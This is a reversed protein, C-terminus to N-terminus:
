PQYAGGSTYLTRYTGYGKIFLDTKGDGNYDGPYVLASSDTLCKDATTGGVDAGDGMFARTFGTGTSNALYLVRYTGYGKVFLDTKGDGNYDGPYVQADPSTLFSAVDTGGADTTYGLFQRLFGTGTSNALYLARYTGCGKVFFDAKGDGNYDGPYLKSNPSTLFPESDTGGINDLDSSFQCDFGTGASNATYLARYTGYGKVFLDAKGDGNYDGPCVQATPECVWAHIGSVIGAGDGVFARTFGTGTSNALYLVRYTGYGKVFLDTKGDGNYDGPYVQADPSTLFSAVDTGGADTTYGLFQRLFGTGSSNALYLARYTGYGKVFFDAKGDGNYDGPYLKADPSTLFPESDTGGINDLNSSFVANFNVVLRYISAFINFYCDNYLIGADPQETYISATVDEIKYNQNAGELTLVYPSKSKLVYINSLDLNGTKYTINTSAKIKIAGKSATATPNTLTCNAIDVDISDHHWDLIRIGNETTNEIDCNEIDIYGNGDSYAPYIYIGFKSNTIHCDSVAISVDDTTSTLNHLAFHIGSQKNNNFTCNTININELTENAYNPEFDIGDWPGASALGAPNFIGTNCLNCNDINVNKASIISIGNRANGNCTVDEITVTDNCPAGLYIGDGGSKDLRVGSITVNTCGRITLAHRWQGSTYENILMIIMANYGTIKINNKYEAKIFPTTLTTFAGSKAELVVGSELALEVNSQTFELPGSIWKTGAGQYTLIVKNAGSNLGAQIDNTADTSNYTVYYDVALLYNPAACLIFALGWTFLKNRSIRM